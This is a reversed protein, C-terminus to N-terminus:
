IQHMSPFATGPSFLILFYRIGHSISDYFQWRDPLGVKVRFLCVDVYDNKPINM